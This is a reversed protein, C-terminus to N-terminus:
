WWHPHPAGAMSHILLRQELRGLRQMVALVFVALAVVIMQMRQTTERHLAQVTLRLHMADGEDQEVRPSSVVHAVRASVLPSPPPREDGPWVDSLTARTVSM